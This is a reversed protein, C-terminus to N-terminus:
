RPKSLLERLREAIQAPPTGHPLRAALQGDPGILAIFASHDVSYLGEKSATQKMYRAGYQRAVQAIEGTSGTLGTFAPHFYPVYVKLVDLTDREPDVTVFLGKTRELEVPSLQAFAQALAVLSTPCVDPCFTYGFYLAVVKGKFDSLAVPGDPSTLTFNGGTAAAEARTLSVASPTDVAPEWFFALWLLVALLTAILAIWLSSKNM